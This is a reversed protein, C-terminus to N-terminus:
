GRYLAALGSDNGGGLAAPLSLTPINKNTRKITKLATKAAQVTLPSLKCGPYYPAQNVALLKIFCEEYGPPMSLATSLAAFTTVVSTTRLSLTAGTTIPYPYITGNPFASEYYIAEPITGTSAKYPIADWTDVNIVDVDYTIGNLVAVASDITIPRDAVWVGIAGITISTEGAMVHSIQTNVYAFARGNSHLNLLRNLARLGDSLMTSSPSEGEQVLGLESLADTIMTQATSSM